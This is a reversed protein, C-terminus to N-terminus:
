DPTNSKLLDAIFTRMGAASQKYTSIDPLDLAVIHEWVAVVLKKFTEYKEQDFTLELPPACQGDPLPEIFELAASEVKYGRYERSTEALLVYFYLQQQYTIAKTDSAWKTSPRGSKFDIIRLTKNARDIELRDIKGTLRADGLVCGQQRFDVEIGAPKKLREGCAQLYTTLAKRGRDLYNQKDIDSIFAQEMRREFVKVAQTITRPKGEHADLQYQELARHLADGYVSDPSPAEPFRLLTNLLFQFPGHYEINTFNNLHTPSMVYHNLREKLLSRLTPTLETHRSHWLTDIDQQLQETSRSISTVAQRDVPLVQSIREEAEGSEKLYKVPLHKKGSESKAHSTIFLGHKARTIAVFLLRRQNDDGSSDHRIFKLNAPLSLKNNGAKASSGWVSDFMCPLYVYEYELGKAKYVTQLQVASDAQAIPHTNILPQEADQYTKYLELLSDVTLQHDERAQQDRLNSRIVSLHSVAEYFRLSSGTVANESFYFNKLPSTYSHHDYHLTKAGTVYDLTLELGYQNSGTGLQLLFRVPETLEPVDLARETWRLGDERSVRAHQWNLKWITDIPIQWFDLSLIRPLLEDMLPMHQKSAASLFECILLVAMIIPTEFINERKEYTVPINRKNLFPVLTELIAHKPALIAIEHPAVGSDLQAKITDAIWGNEAAQSNFEHRAILADEPLDAAAASIDKSIDKLSHHLRSEIQEAINHAVHLINAHSRYNKTLNIVTVDRFTALFEVMNGIDAGQFAFIGQDDDGVAMINPRGEHVPHDALTRVLEFQVANTDQFEDLLIYQYREQLNFRLEPKDGLAKLTKLIMDNFDYQASSDLAQQYKEYISALSRIRATIHPDTFSWADNEDKYCWDNKWATLPSTKQLEAAKELAEELEQVASQALTGKGARIADLLESFLTIADDPKRPITGVAGYINQISPSLTRIDRENADALERLDNSAINAQKLDSITSVISRVYHRSSRLPDTFPLADIISRAIELQGLENVPREMRSDDGTELDITEFFQPYAKIIDSAFSHYTNIQVDYADEGIMSRLRDRMNLAAADTFTLCLINQPLTDTKKLINAVRASLLQTKGTGPGALVLLPGEITDVAQKQESNLQGYIEGFNQMIKNYGSQM